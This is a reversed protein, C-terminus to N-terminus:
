SGRMIQKLTLGNLIMKEFEDMWSEVLYQFETIFVELEGDSLVSIEEGMIKRAIKVKSEEQSNPFIQQLKSELSSKIQANQMRDILSFSSAVPVASQTIKHEILPLISTNM